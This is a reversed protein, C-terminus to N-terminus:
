RVSQRWSAMKQRLADRTQQYAPDTVRNTLEDPDDNLDFLQEYDWEPWFVYKFKPTVVAQSAPIRDRNSITPHEYFFEERWSDRGKASDTGLYLQSLDEGQIEPPVVLGAAQLVTPAIDINLAMQDILLGRKEAPLRPDWVLLPVRISEEYPYWKDALGREAHFYGNDGLYVILTQDLVQQERLKEIIRGVAEDVETILRFYNIMSQQYKESSDFRWHFRVIGENKETRLFEPLAERFEPGMRPSVPIQVDRYFEASWAQPLYQQAASDEAHPAFFSVSLQFPRDRPRHELFHIADRANRETVHVEEGDIKVWHLGSYDLAVDFDEARVGGVGYKGVFGSYFGNARLLGPYSNRFQEATLPQGFRDIKHRSMYQGTLISARSSMCISTTVYARDFRIGGAALRDLNPTHINPNGAIGLSDFRQDDAVLVVVNMPPRDPQGGKPGEEQAVVPWGLWGFGLLLFIVMKDHPFRGPAAPGLDISSRENLSRSNNLDTKLTLMLRTEEAIM